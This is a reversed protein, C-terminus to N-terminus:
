EAFDWAKGTKGAADILRISEIEIMGRSSAPDIRVSTLPGAASLEVRYDHWQADHTVAFATSRDLHFTRQPRTTWYVRGNGRSNSKMRVLLKAPGGVPPVTAARIWPDGGTSEIRLGSKDKSLVADRSGIWGLRATDAAQPRYAPNPFPVLSQTYRLHREILANMQSARDPLSAALNKSEGIDDKLNYLELRDTQKEGDAHLRILKWDGQRVSTAPLNGTAPTYHPFHCFIADRDLPGTNRLAPVLSVGDLIAPAHQELDLMELLTPYFDVSSVISGNTSGPPTQGPWVVIMPVRVGGEYISGKGNRLPANNTPPLGEVVNYMNGGNDSFFIFITKETLRLEDLTDLLTGVADDLPEIMAGMVPNRQPNEPKAKRRYKEILEAKAEFPAHVSYDWFCLFFPEERHDRLFDVAEIAIRDTIHEGARPQPITDIPWPSFYGGPPGPHHRGGVVVDFGQQEPLYPERGLHWKGFFGTTYGAQKLVEAITVYQNPLRTRTQPTVAKHSPPGAAPLKPDLVVQPMHGAPTTLRLRGPYHGTLISARTPSCLPSASYADTFTMGRQALREINPTEYFTSGGPSTDRWGLDDALFFVINPRQPPEAALARAAPALLVLALLM